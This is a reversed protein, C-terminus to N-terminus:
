IIRGTRVIGRVASFMVMLMGLLAIYSTIESMARKEFRLRYGLKDYVALLGEASDARFYEGQTITAVKKLADEELKVRMSRGQMRVVDGELTGIGVTYVKVDHTAALEAMKIFDPGM